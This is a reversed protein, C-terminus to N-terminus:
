RKNDFLSGGTCCALHFLYQEAWKKALPANEIASYAISLGGCAEIMDQTNDLQLAGAYQKELTSILLNLEQYSKFSSGAKM